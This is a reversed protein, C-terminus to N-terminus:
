AWGPLLNGAVVECSHSGGASLTDWGGVDLLAAACLSANAQGFVRLTQTPRTGIAIPIKPVKQMLAFLVVANIAHYVVFLSLVDNKGSNTEPM